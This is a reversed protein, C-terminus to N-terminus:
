QLISIGKYLSLQSCLHYLAYYLGQVALYDDRDDYQESATEVLRSVHGYKNTFNVQIHLTTYYTGESLQTEAWGVIKVETM